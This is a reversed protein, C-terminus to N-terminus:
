RRGGSRLPGNGAGRGPRPRGRVKIFGLLKGIAYHNRLSPNAHPDGVVARYKAEEAELLAALHHAAGVQEEGNGEDLTRLLGLVVQQATIPAILRHPSAGLARWARPGWRM